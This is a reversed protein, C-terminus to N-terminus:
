RTVQFLFESHEFEGGKDRTRVNEEIDSILISLKSSGRSPTVKFGYCGASQTEKEYPKLIARLQVYRNRVSQISAAYASSPEGGVRNVFAQYVDPVNQLDDFLFQIRRKYERTSKCGNRTIYRTHFKLLRRADRRNTRALRHFSDYSLFPVRDHEVLNDLMNRPYQNPRGLLCSFKFRDRQLYVRPAVDSSNNNKSSHIIRIAVMSRRLTTTKTRFLFRYKKGRKLSMNPKFKRLCNKSSCSSVYLGSGGNMYKFLRGCDSSESQATSLLLFSFLFAFHKMPNNM